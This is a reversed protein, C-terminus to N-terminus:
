ELIFKEIEYVRESTIFATSNNGWQNLIYNMVDAIEENNLGQNNMVGDYIEGNVEIKGKLGFKIGAISVDINELLYDSAKLPPNVESVGKGDFQHCQVCFDQYIEAGANISQTKTKKQFLNFSLFGLFLMYSTIIIKM